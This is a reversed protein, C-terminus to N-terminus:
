SLIEVFILFIKSIESDKADSVTKHIALPSFLIIPLRRTFAYREDTMLMLRTSSRTPTALRHMDKM